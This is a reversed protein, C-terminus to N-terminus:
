LVYSKVFCGGKIRKAIIVALERCAVPQGGGSSCSQGYIGSLERRVHGARAVRDVPARRGAPWRLSGSRGCACPNCSCHEGCTCLSHTAGERGGGGG